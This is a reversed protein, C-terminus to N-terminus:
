CPLHLCQTAGAEPKCTVCVCQHVLYNNMLSLRNLLFRAKILAVEIEVRIKLEVVCTKFELLVTLSIIAVGEHLVTQLVKLV